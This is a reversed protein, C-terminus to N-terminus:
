DDCGCGGDDSGFADYDCGCGGYPTDNYGCGFLYHNNQRDFIDNCNKLIKM